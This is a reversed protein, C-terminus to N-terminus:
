LKLWVTFTSGKGPESIVTVKGGHHEVITKVIALGLGTGGRDRSRAKDVRYFRDFLHPLNEPAIGIGSDTVELRAWDKDRFLSILIDGGDPTYKIANDILNGLMQSLRYQDGKISIDDLRGSAINLKQARLQVRKLEENILSRLSVNGQRAESGAEVEALLLLDSAIKNLRGSESEIATLSEQRGEVSMNRKLLDLNGKIVTLPTRLEHSADAIFNKQSEFTKDLHDIMHDFTTALQGIEDPPGKYDVRRKLNSSEEISRATRTINEVPKLTRRVLIAGLIVTLLLAVSGAAILAFRFQSLANDVPELSKAVELVLTQDALHLPSVMIRVQTQDGTRVTQIDTGGNIAKELLAPNVPLVQEGLSDSKVVAIGAPDVIQIYTGASSFEDIPPLSSHIATYDPQGPFTQAHVTSHVQASFDQLRVDVNSILYNQLLINLVVGSLVLIVLLILSFWLTLRWRIPV